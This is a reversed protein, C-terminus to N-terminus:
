SAHDQGTGRVLDRFSAFDMKFSREELAAKDGDAEEITLRGAQIALVLLDATGLLRDQGIREKAERRFRGKEDSAVMWGKEVAIALCAAEGRGLHVTLEAFVAIAAIDTIEEIQIIGREVCATLAASQEPRSIEERVHDPVVLEFGPLCACLALRAVHMLNILVSADAVIIRASTTM